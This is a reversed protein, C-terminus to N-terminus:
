SSYIYDFKALYVIRSFGNGQKRLGIKLNSRNPPRKGQKKCSPPNVWEEQNIYNETNKDEKVGYM